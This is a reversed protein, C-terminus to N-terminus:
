KPTVASVCLFEVWLLRQQILLTRSCFCLPVLGRWGPTTILERGMFPPLPSASCGNGQPYLLSSDMTLLYCLVRQKPIVELSFRGGMCIHQVGEWVSTSFRGSFPRQQEVLCGCLLDTLSDAQEQQDVWVPVCYFGLYFM